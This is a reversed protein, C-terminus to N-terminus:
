FQMDPTHKVILYEHTIYCFFGFFGPLGIIRSASQSFRLKRFFPSSKEVQKGKCIKKRKKKLNPLCLDWFNPAYGCMACMQVALFCVSPSCYFHLHKLSAVLSGILEQHLNSSSGNPLLPFFIEFRLRNEGKGGASM